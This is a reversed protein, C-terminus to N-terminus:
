STEHQGVLRGHRWLLEYGGREEIGNSVDHHLKVPVPLSGHCFHIGVTRRHNEVEGEWKRVLALNYLFLFIVLPIHVVSAREVM